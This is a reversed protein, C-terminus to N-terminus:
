TRESDRLNCSTFGMSLGPPRDCLDLVPPMCFTGVVLKKAPVAFDTRSDAGYGSGAMPFVM